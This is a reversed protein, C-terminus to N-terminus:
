GMLVATLLECVCLFMSNIYVHQLTCLRVDIVDKGEM